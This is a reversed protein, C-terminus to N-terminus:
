PSKIQNPENGAPLKADLQTARLRSADTWLSPPVIYYLVGFFFSACPYVAFRALCEESRLDEKGEQLCGFM